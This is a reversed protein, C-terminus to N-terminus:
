SDEPVALRGPIWPGFVKGPKAGPLESRPKTFHPTHMDARTSLLLTFVKSHPSLGHHM